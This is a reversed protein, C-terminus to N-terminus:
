GQTGSLVPCPQLLRRGGSLMYELAPVWQMVAQCLLEVLSVCMFAMIARVYYLCARTFVIQGTYLNPLV